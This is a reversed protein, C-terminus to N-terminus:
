DTRGSPLETMEVTVGLATWGGGSYIGRLPSVDAYDRGRAVLIHEPGVPRENTPDIPWWDGCWFEVWAHSEGFSTVGPEVHVAPHLYGSVYRGPIGMARLLLLTVHAFDQCVGRGAAWAEPGSTHVGTAGPSYELRERVLAVVRDVADVPTSSTASVELASDALEADVPVYATPELLEVHTERVEESRLVTWPAVASSPRPRAATEVFASARVTLADHPEHVDFVSVFNGWYDWYNRVRSRPETEIRADLTLQWPDTQPTMRAENYSATVPDAYRYGTTHTVRLRSSAPPPGPQLATM